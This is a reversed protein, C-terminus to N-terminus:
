VVMFSAVSALAPREAPAMLVVTVGSVGAAAVTAFVVCVAVVAVVSSCRSLRCLSVFLALSAGVIDGSCAEM